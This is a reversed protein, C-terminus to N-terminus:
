ARNWCCSAAQRCFAEALMPYPLGCTAAFWAAAPVTASPVNAPAPIPAAMPAAPPLTPAPAAM